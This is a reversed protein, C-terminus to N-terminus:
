RGAKSVLLIMGGFQATGFAPADISRVFRIERLSSAPIARLEDLGGLAVGNLYVQRAARGELDIKSLLFMPQLREIAEYATTAQSHAIQSETLVNRDARISASQPAQRVGRTACATLLVAAFLLARHTQSSRDTAGM